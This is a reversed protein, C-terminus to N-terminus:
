YTYSNHGELAKPAVLLCRAQRELGELAEAPNEHDEPHRFLLWLQELRVGRRRALDGLCIHGLLALQSLSHLRDEHILLDINFRLLYFRM